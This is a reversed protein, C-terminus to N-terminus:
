DELKTTTFLDGDFFVLKGDLLGIMPEEKDQYTLKHTKYEEKILNKIAKFLEKNEM